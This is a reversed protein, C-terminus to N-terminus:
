AISPESFSFQDIKELTEGLIRNAEVNYNPINCNAIFSIKMLDRWRRYQRVMPINEVTEILASPNSLNENLHDMFDVLKEVSMKNPEGNSIKDMSKFLEPESPLTINLKNVANTEAIKQKEADTYYSWGVSNVFENIKGAIIHAIMDEADDLKKDVDVLSKIELAITKTMNLRNFNTKLNELLKMLLRKEFGLNIIFELNAATLKTEFWYDRAKESLSDSKNPLNYEGFFLQNLNIEKSEFLARTDDLTNRHYDQRLIELNEDFVKQSFAQGLTLRPSSERFFIVDNIKSKDILIISRLLSHNLDFIEDESITLHEIFNGFHFSDKGFIKNMVMHIESSEQAANIIQEDAKDNHFHSSLIKKAEQLSNNLINIYIPVSIRNSTIPALNKIIFESGDKNLTSAEKFSLEPDAFFQQNEKHYELFDELYKNNFKKEDENIFDSEINNVKSFVGDSKKFDRLLYFNKFKSFSNNRDLVWQDHWKEGGIIEEEYRTKFLKIIREKPDFSDTEKKYALQTNWWTFIIFLPPISETLNIFRQSPTAGLNDDIWQKILRPMATVNTQQTARMCACLTNTKYNASYYNFLYSVKGRLLMQILNEKSLKDIAKRTRAGPFDIIDSNEIFSRNDISGKSVSLVIESTLLCLRSATIPLIEGNELKINFFRNDDFFLELTRVDIIPGTEIGRKLTDFNSYVIKSFKIKSLEDICIKFLDSLELHSNWLIDFVKSWNSIDIHQINSALIDWFTSNKLYDNIFPNQTIQKELYEKIEYVDDDTIFAQTAIGKYNLINNSFANIQDLRPLTEDDIFDSFYSDCLIIIIDRPSFLKLKVPLKSRDREYNSTFRTVTSTSETGEGSPNIYKIFDIPNDEDSNNYIMLKNDSDYLLNNAMYSKGVQSAGFLAIAPKETVVAKVKNLTRRHKKLAYNTGHRDDDTLYTNTWEVGENIVEVLKETNGAINNLSDQTINTM